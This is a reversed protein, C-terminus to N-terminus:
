PDTSASPPTSRSTASPSSTPRSPGFPAPLDVSSAASVPVIACRADLGVRTVVEEASSWERLAEHMKTERVVELTLRSVYEDFLRDSRAFRAAFSPALSPPLLRAATAAVREAEHLDIGIPAGPTTM